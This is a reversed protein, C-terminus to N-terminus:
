HYNSFPDGEGGRRVLKNSKFTTNICFFLSNIFKNNLAIEKLM